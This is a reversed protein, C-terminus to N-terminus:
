PMRGSYDLDYGSEIGKLKAPVGESMWKAVPFDKLYHDFFQTLRITYDEAAKRNLVHGEDDYQLMWVKKGLRRLAMYLAVGQSWPVAIDAKNHMILLPTTVKDASLVASGRLYLDPRQWLTAGMRGQGNEAGSQRDLVDLYSSVLDSGGAAEAAASFIRTHTVLYNTLGGGFSHGNIGMKTSNVWPKKSLYKAASVISNYANEGNTKNTKAALSLHIDPTFVLYGRSVFWPINIYASTFEPKLFANLNSSLQEYYEFIIPYKKNPDFNEPKYLIGQCISGDLQEWNVLETTLWNCNKQPQLDTLSTYTKFDNTLFYNPAQISTMRKVIWCNTNLAKLPKMSEVGYISNPIQSNVQYLLFPGMTLLEPDGRKELSKQYFGNNKNKTNFATLLLPETRQLAKSERISEDVLRFKINHIRGYGNTINIPLKQAKLDVEWIDYNDYLLLSVDQNFWGAIGIPNSEGKSRRAYEDDLPVSIGQSINHTKDSGVDYSFYKKQKKNYYVIYKSQPSVSFITYGNEKTIFKRSGDKLSVLYYSNFANDWWYGTVLKNDTIVTFNDGECNYVIVEDGETIQIVHGGDANIVAMPLFGSKKPSFPNLQNSQLVKDKYSWINVKVANLDPKRNDIPPELQFYIWNGNKSFRLGTNTITLQSKIGASQNNVRLVAKDMGIRYYWITNDFGHGNTSNVIFALQTGATDFTFNGITETAQFQSKDSWITTVKFEPLSVWKLSSTSITDHKFLTKLLLAKGNNDFSYDKVSDFHQKNGSILNLLILDEGNNKSQLALWEGKGSQTPFRFSSINSIFSLKGTGIDLFFLTDSAKYIVQKNDNTFFLPEAGVIEKEWNSYTSKIVLTNYGIPLNNVTYLAYNGDNSIMPTGLTPWKAIISSDIPMKQAFGPLKYSMLVFLLLFRKM